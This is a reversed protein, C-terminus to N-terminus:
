VLKVEETVHVKAKPLAVSFVSGKGEESEVRISGNCSEVLEKCLMLGLGTGKEESTGLTTFRRDTFLKSLNGSSIGRGDDSVTITAKGNQEKLEVRIEGGQYSFKVANMLLNRLVFNLREKDTLATTGETVKNVVKISKKEAYSRVQKINEETLLHLSVPEFEVYSEELQAKAWILVNDLLSMAVDMEKGLLEFIQKVKSESLAKSQAISLIGKFSFFPGRLDHSIISFVKNKFCSNQELQENQERLVVAQSSIENKQKIIENQQVQMLHHARQLDTFATKQRQRSVYLVVLVVLMLLIVTGELILTNQQHSIEAAQKERQAKLNQNELEKQETEYQATIESEIKKRSESNLIEQHQNFLTLYEYAQEYNKMSAYITHMLESAEAIKKSSETKLAMNLSQKAYKLAKEQNGIARYITAIKGLAAMKIMDNQVEENLRVSKFLYPLGDEPQGFYLLVNGINLLSVARNKKDGVEEQLGVALRYYNLAQRYDTKDEYVNGLNNYVNSLRLKDNVKLALESAITYNKVARATDRLKYYINGVNIYASILTTTDNIQEGIKLATYYCGLARDYEGMVLHAGGLINLAKARGHALGSAKALAEAAQGYEKAKIADSLVYLKSLNCYIMVRASDTKAKPLEALLSDVLKNQAQLRGSLFLLLLLIIRM